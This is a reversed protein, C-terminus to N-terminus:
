SIRLFLVARAAECSACFHVDDSGGSDRPVFFFAHSWCVPTERGALLCGDCLRRCMTSCRHCPRRVMGPVFM